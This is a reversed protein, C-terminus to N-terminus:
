LPRRAEILRDSLADVQAADLLGDECARELQRLHWEAKEAGAASELIPHDAERRDSLSSLRKSLREIVYDNLPGNLVATAIAQRAREDLALRDDTQLQSWTALHHNVRRRSLLTHRVVAALSLGADALFAVDRREEAEDICRQARRVHTRSRADRVMQDRAVAPREGDYYLNM